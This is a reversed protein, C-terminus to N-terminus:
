KLLWYCIIAVVERLTSPLYYWLEIASHAHTIQEFGAKRATFEARFIHYDTTVFAVTYDDGLREDLLQKSYMFNYDTGTAKEEKIIVDPDVGRELLYREMALAETIDEQAGRGGSVVILADPNQRHYEVARDLRAALSSGVKEGHVAAGLVIIADEEYTVNDTKGYVTVFLTALLAYSILVILTIRIWKRIKKVAGLLIIAAGLLIVFATGASFNTIFLLAIGYAALM